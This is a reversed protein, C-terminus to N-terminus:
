RFSRMGQHAFAAEQMLETELTDSDDDGRAAAPQVVITSIKTINLMPMIVTDAARSHGFYIHM